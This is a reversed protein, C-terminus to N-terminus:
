KSIHEGYIVLNIFVTLATKSFIEMKNQSENQADPVSGHCIVSLHRIHGSDTWQERALLAPVHGHM